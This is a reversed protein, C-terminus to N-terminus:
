KNVVQKSLIEAWINRPKEEPVEIKKRKCELHHPKKLELAQKTLVMEEGCIWCLSLRGEAVVKSVYHTCGPLACKFIIYDKGMRARIYKHIHPGEIKDVM